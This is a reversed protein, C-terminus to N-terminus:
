YKWTYNVGLEFQEMEISILQTDGGPTAALPNGGKVEVSPAYMFSFDLSSSKSINTTFGLTWHDEVVGPAHINFLMETEPIPQENTSFGARAQWNGADFQYGLHIVDVDEWGFGSGNSGGLCSSPDGGICMGLNPFLPNSISAAGSYEIRQYDLLITHAKAPSFRAGISWTAPIDFDGQEAFLGAYEDFESMDIKSQYSAGLSFGDTIEGTIGVKVGFGTSTDNGKGTLNAPDTSFGGFADLGKAKFKQFAFVGSVGLSVQDTVKRAYTAMTILQELNIGSPGAGYTGPVGEPAGPATVNIFETNMGGNGAVTIGVSSVDDIMHNWGFNPIFFSENESEFTGPLLSFAGTEPGLFPGVQDVTYSRRPSFWTVGADIRSGANVMNAPNLIADMADLSMAVGSGAMGKSKISAGNGFYGNTAMAAGPLAMTAAVALVLAHKRPNIM